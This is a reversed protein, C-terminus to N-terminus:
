TVPIYLKCIDRCHEKSNVGRVPLDYPDKDPRQWYDLKAEAYALIVHLSSYDIEVTPINNMRIDKRFKSDLAVLRWEAGMRLHVTILYVIVFKDHHTINVYIPKNNRKRQKMSQCNLPKDLSQIDIFTKELLKNYQEVLQRMDKIYRKDEYEVDNKDEDSITERGEAYGIHFLGFARRLCDIM